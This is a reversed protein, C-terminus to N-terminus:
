QTSRYNEAIYDLLVQHDNPLDLDIIKNELDDIIERIYKGPKRDLVQAIELGDVAIESRSKIPLSSYQYSVDKKSIGKITAALSNVYLGYQYLVRHNLNNLKLVTQINKILSKENNTFPYLGVVDLQAWVGVLDDLLVVDKLKPLELEQDLGLDLLLHIGYDAYVSSFIKDLEEKKREYSIDKLLHKTRLIALKVDESLQFNLVTAIRVARLIRFADESFKM